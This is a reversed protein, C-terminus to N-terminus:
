LSGWLGNEKQSLFWSHLYQIFLATLLPIIWARMELDELSGRHEGLWMLFGFVVALVIIAVTIWTPDKLFQKLLKWRQYPNSLNLDQTKRGM